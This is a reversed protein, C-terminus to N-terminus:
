FLGGCRWIYKRIAAQRVKSESFEPNKARVEAEIEALKEKKLLLTMVKEREREEMRFLPKFPSLIQRIM